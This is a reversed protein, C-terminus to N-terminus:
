HWDYQSYGLTNLAKKHEDSIDNWWQDTSTPWQDNNWMQQTFGLTTAADQVHSPLDEFNLDEYKNNWASKDWGLETAASREAESLDGWHKDECPAWKKAWNSENYGLTEAASRANGPLNNWSCDLYKTNKGSGGGFM